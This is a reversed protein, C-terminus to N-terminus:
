VWGDSTTPDAEQDHYPILVVETLDVLASTEDPDTVFEGIVELSLTVEYILDDSGWPTGPTAASGGVNVEDFDISMGIFANNEIYTRFGARTADTDSSIFVKLVEDFLRDRQLSTFAVLTYEALGAFRWRQVEHRTSPGTDHEVDVIERHALGATSLPQTTRFDLWVGPYNHSDAPYEISVHLDRFDEEPYDSDFSARLAEALVHKTEKLFM